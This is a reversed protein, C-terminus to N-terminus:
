EEAGLPRNVLSRRFAEASARPFGMFRALRGWITEEHYLRGGTNYAAFLDSMPYSSAESMM